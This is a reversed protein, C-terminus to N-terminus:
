AKEKITSLPHERLWDYAEAVLRIHGMSHPDRRYSALIEKRLEAPLRYWCRPCAVKYRPVDTAECGPCPKTIVTM